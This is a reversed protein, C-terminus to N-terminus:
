NTSAIEPQVGTPITSNAVSGVVNMGGFITVALILTNLIGIVIPTAASRPTIKQTGKALAIWTIVIGFIIATILAAWEASPGLRVIFAAIAPGGLTGAGFTIATAPDLFALGGPKAPEGAPGPADVQLATTISPMEAGFTTYLV